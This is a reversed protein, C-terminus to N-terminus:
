KQNSVNWFILGDLWTMNKVSIQTASVSNGDGIKVVPVYEYFWKQLEDYVAKAQELNAAGRFSALLKDLEPSDTWGPFDKRMFALSSPEPKPTNTIVLIDFKNEDNRLETFTPWDYVELKTKVGMKELQQQFAVAGNYMDEYDRSTVIKIEDGKYGAEALMQKAKEPNNQNYLEKGADSSWQGLQYYMMMSHNLKYYKENTYAGILISEADIGAGIAQRAKANTFLGKKKNFYLTLMGTPAVEIKINSDTELREVNDYSVDAAVDYEGSLLGAVQTSADPTFQFYLDDVLAERKGALGDAAEERPAYDPHKALHIYQDQKWEKFQFPGTGVYDKVGKPDATEIIEKPMIAPYNGGLYALVPMATATPQQLHLVATHADKAEFRADKFHDKGASATTIWRNMSAVVDDATLEKGNHFRVGKRLRFTITKGDESQEWSDALMPKIQYRSDVTVLTEFVNRGITASAQSTTVHPDLTQPQAQYAVKLEGGAKADAAPKAETKTETKAGENQATQAGCGALSFALLLLCLKKALSPSKM